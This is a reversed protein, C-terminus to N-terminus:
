RALVRWWWPASGFRLEQVGAAREFLKRQAPTARELWSMVARRRQPSLSAPREQLWERLKSGHVYTVGDVEVVGAAFQGWLVVVPYVWAREGTEAHIDHSLKKSANRMSSTLGDLLYSDRPQDIRLVRLASGEVTLEDALNKTNLLFLGPGVIVHDRNGQPDVLDHRIVWGERALPRLEKATWQEGWAGRQWRRIHDPPDDRVVIWAIGTAVLLSTALSSWLQPLQVAGLLLVFLLPWVWRAWPGFMRRQWSARLEKYRREASRGAGAHRMVRFDMGGSDARCVRPFLHLALLRSGVALTALPQDAM